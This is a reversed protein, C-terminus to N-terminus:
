RRFRYGKYSFLAGDALVKELRLGPIVEDGERVLKDDIMAMSGAQDDRIFGSVVLPPLEKLLAPPLANAASKASAETSDGRGPATAVVPLRHEDAPRATAMEAAAASPRVPAPTPPRLPAISPPATQVVPLHQAPAVPPQVPAAPQLRTWVLAGSVAALVLAVAVAVPLRWSFERREVMVPHLVSGAEGAAMQREQESKRLADLVYSM